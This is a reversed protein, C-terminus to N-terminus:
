LISNEKKEGTMFTIKLFPSKGSKPKIVEVAPNSSAGMDTLHKRFMKKSEEEPISAWGPKKKYCKVTREGEQYAANLISKELKSIERFANDVQLALQYQNEVLAQQTDSLSLVRDQLEPIPQLSSYAYNYISWNKGLYRATYSDGGEEELHYKNQNVDTLTM